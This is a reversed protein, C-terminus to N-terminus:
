INVENWQITVWHEWDVANAEAVIVVSEGEALVIEKREDFTAYAQFIGSNHQGDKTLVGPSGVWISGAASIATPEERAIGVAVSGSTDRLQDTLTTGGSPLVTTREFRYLFPTTFSFDITGSVDVRNIYITRGSGIPNELSLLEQETASGAILSTSAYYDGVPTRTGVPATHIAGGSTISFFKVLGNEDKGAFLLGSQNNFITDDELVALPNGYGDYLIVAPNRGSM